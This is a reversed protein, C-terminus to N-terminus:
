RRSSSSLVTELLEWALAPCTKKMEQWGKTKMVKTSSERIFSVASEKLNIANHTRALTLLSSCNEITLKETLFTECKWKLLDLFYREAAALLSQAMEVTLDAQDTYIFRLLAQFVDPEIDAIDARSQTAEKMGHQYM